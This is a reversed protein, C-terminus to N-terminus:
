QIAASLRAISSYDTNLVQALHDMELVSCTQVSHAPRGGREASPTLTRKPAMTETKTRTQIPRRRMRYRSPGVDSQNRGGLVRRRPPGYRRNNLLM